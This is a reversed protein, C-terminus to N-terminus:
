HYRKSVHIQQYFVAPSTDDLRIIRQNAKVKRAAALERSFRIVPVPSSKVGMAATDTIPSLYRDM